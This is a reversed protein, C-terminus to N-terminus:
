RSENIVEPKVWDYIWHSRKGCLSEVLAGGHDNLKTVLGIFSSVYSHQPVLVLDGVKVIAERIEIPITATRDGEDFSVMRCLVM